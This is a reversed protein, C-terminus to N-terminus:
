LNYEYEEILYMRKESRNKFLKQSIKLKSWYLPLKPFLYMKDM